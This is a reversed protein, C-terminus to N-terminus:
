KYWSTLPQALHTILFCKANSMFRFFSGSAQPEFAEKSGRARVFFLSRQGAAGYATWGGDVPIVSATIESAAPSALFWIVEAVEGPGIFRGQPSRRHIADADLLGDRELARVPETQVYGPAVANGRIDRSAWECGLNRTLAVVGAKAKAAGHGNRGPIGTLAAILAMNVIAGGQTMRRAAERAMLFTGTLNIDLMRRLHAADQELGPRATDGAGANNVLAGATLGFADLAEVPWAGVRRRGRRLLARLSGAGPYRRPRARKANIDAIVVRDGRQAFLQATAWGIGAAGGTIISIRM